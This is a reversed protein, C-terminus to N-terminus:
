FESLYLNVKYGKNEYEKGLLKAEKITLLKENVMHWNKYEMGTIYVASNPIPKRILKCIEWYLPNFCKEFLYSMCKNVGIAVLDLLIFPLFIGYMFIAIITDITRKHGENM